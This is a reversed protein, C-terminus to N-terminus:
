YAATLVLVLVRPIILRLTGCYTRRVGSICVCRRGSICLHLVVPQKM